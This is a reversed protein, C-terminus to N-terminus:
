SPEIESFHLTSVDFGTLALIETIEAKRLSNLYLGLVILHMM